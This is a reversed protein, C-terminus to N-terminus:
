PTLTPLRRRWCSLWLGVGVLVGAVLPPLTMAPGLAALTKRGVAGDTCGSAPPDISVWTARRYRTSLAGHTSAGTM